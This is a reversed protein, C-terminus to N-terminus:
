QSTTSVHSGYIEPAFFQLLSNVCIGVPGEPTQWFHLRSTGFWEYIQAATVLEPSNDLTIVDVEACCGPCWALVAKARRVILMTETEVTIRTAKLAVARKTEIM